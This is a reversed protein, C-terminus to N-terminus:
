SLCFENGEPDTMTYWSHPGQRGEYLFTAGRAILRDREASRDDNQDVFVDWHVRNKVTKPEPVQQFIIRQRGPQGLQDPRTIAAGAKWVLHGNHRTTDAETALGQDIMRAIFDGDTPEVVWGMTVAWWEALVHPDACDVALQYNLPKASM